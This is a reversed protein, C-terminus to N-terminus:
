KKFHNIIYNLNGELDICINEVRGDRAPHYEEHMMPITIIQNRRTLFIGDVGADLAEKTIQLWLSLPLIIGFTTNDELPYSIYTKNKYQIIQKHQAM